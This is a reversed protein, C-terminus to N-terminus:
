QWLISGWLREWFLCNKECFTVKIRQDMSHGKKEASGEQSLLLFGANRHWTYFLIAVWPWPFFVEKHKLCPNNLSPISTSPTWLLNNVVGSSFTKETDSSLLLVAAQPHSAESHRPRHHFYSLYIVQLHCKFASPLNPHASFREQFLGLAKRYKDCNSHRAPMISTYGNEHEREASSSM